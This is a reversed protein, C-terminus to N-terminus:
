RAGERDTSRRVRRFLHEGAASDPEPSSLVVRAPFFGDGDFCYEHQGLARASENVHRAKLGQVDSLCDLRM